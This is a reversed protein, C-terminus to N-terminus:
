GAANKSFYTKLPSGFSGKRGYPNCCVAIALADLRWPISPRKGHDLLGSLCSLLQVVLFNLILFTFDIQFKFKAGFRTGLGAALHRAHSEASRM